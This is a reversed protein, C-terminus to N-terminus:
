VRARPPAGVRRSLWVFSVVGLVDALYDGLSPTRLPALAQAVEDIGAPMLVCLAAVPVMFGFAKVERRALAGDLCFALAGAAGFHVVKDYAGLWPWLGHVYAFASLAAASALTLGFGAWWLARTEGPKTPPPSPM